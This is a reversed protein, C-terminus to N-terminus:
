FFYLFHEDLCKDILGLTVCLNALTVDCKANEDKQFSCILIEDKM